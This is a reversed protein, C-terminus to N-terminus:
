FAKVCGYACLYQSEGQTGDPASRRAAMLLMKLQRSGRQYATIETVRGASQM